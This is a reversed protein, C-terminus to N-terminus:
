RKVYEMTGKVKVVAGGAIHQPGGNASSEAIVFRLEVTGARM